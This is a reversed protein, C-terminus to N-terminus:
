RWEGVHIADALQDVTATQSMVIAPLQAQISRAAEILDLGHYDSLTLETILLYAPQQRLHELASFGCDFTVVVLDDRDSLVSKFLPEILPDSDVVLIHTSVKEPLQAM